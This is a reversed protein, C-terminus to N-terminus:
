DGLAKRVGAIQEGMGKGTRFIYLAEVKAESVMRARVAPNNENALRNLRITLERQSRFLTSRTHQWVERWPISLKKAIQPGTYGERAPQRVEDGISKNAM